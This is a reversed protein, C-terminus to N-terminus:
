HGRKEQDFILPEKKAENSDFKRSFKRFIQFIQGCNPQFNPTKTYLHTVSEPFIPIAM